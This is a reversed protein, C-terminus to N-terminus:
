DLDQVTSRASIVNQVCNGLFHNKRLALKDTEDCKPLDQFEMGKFKDCLKWTATEYEECSFAQHRECCAPSLWQLECDYPAKKLSCAPSSKFHLQQMAKNMENKGANFLCMDKGKALVEERSCSNTQFSAEDFKDCGTWTANYDKFQLCAEAQFQECCTSSFQGELVCTTDAVKVSCPLTTTTTTTTWTTSTTTTTTTTPKAKKEKKGKKFFFVQTTRVCWSRTLGRM